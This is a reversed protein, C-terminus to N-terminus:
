RGILELYYRIWHSQTPDQSWLGLTWWIYRLGIYHSAARYGAAFVDPGIVDGLEERVRRYEGALARTCLHHPLDLYFPGLCAAQWDIFRPKGDAILVNSPNIDGHILTMNEQHETLAAIEDAVSAAAAEVIAISGGFERGFSEM